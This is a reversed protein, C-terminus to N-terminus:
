EAKLTHQLFGQFRNDWLAAQAITGPASSYMSRQKLKQKSAIDIRVRTRWRLSSHLRVEAQM